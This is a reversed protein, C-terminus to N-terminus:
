KTIEDHHEQLYKSVKHEVKIDKSDVSVPPQEEVMRQPKSQGSYNVKPDIERGPLHSPEQSTTNGLLKTEFGHATSPIFSSNQTVTNGCPNVQNPDLPNACNLNKCSSHPCTTHLILKHKGTLDTNTVPPKPAKPTLEGGHVCAYKRLHLNNYLPSRVLSINIGQSRVIKFMSRVQITHINKRTCQRSLYTYPRKLSVLLIQHNRKFNGRGIYGTFSNFVTQNSISIKQYILTNM